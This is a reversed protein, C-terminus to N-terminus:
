RWVYVYFKVPKNEYIAFRTVQVLDNGTDKEGIYEVPSGEISMGSFSFYFNDKIGLQSKKSQYNFNYFNELKTQNIEGNSAIGIEDDKLIIESATNAQYLLDNLKKNSQDAYNIAYLYLIIIGIIFILVAVIVDFSWAQSRKSNPLINRRDTILNSARTGKRDKILIFQVM